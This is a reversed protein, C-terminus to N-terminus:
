SSPCGNMTESLNEMDIGFDCLLHFTEISKGLPISYIEALGANPRSTM